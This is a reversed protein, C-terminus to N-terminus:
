RTAATKTGKQIAIVKSGCTPCSGQVAPTGNKLPASMPNKVEVNGKCKMCRAQAM